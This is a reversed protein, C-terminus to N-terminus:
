LVEHSWQLLLNVKQWDKDRLEQEKKECWCIVWMLALGIIFFVLGGMAFGNWYNDKLQVNQIECILHDGSYENYRSCDNQQMLM